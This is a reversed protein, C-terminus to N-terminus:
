AGSFGCGNGCPGYMYKFDGKRNFKRTKVKRTTDKVTVKKIDEKYQLRSYFNDWNERSNMVWVKRTKDTFTVTVRVAPKTETVFM